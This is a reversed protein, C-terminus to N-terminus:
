PAVAADFPERTVVYLRTTSEAAGAPAMRYRVAGVAVFGDRVAGNWAGDARHRLRRVDVAVPREAGNAVEVVTVFLGGASWQGAVTLSLVGRDPHAYLATVDRVRTEVAVMGGPVAALRPPAEDRSAAYRILGVLGVRPDVGAPRGGAASGEAEPRAVEVVLAEAGVAPPGYGDEAEVDFLVFEGTEELRAAVRRKGFPATALWYASRNAFQARLAGSDLLGAPVGVSAPGDFEIRQEVGVRLRVEIPRGSWEVVAAESAWGLAAALAMAARARM